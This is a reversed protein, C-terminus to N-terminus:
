TRRTDAQFVKMAGGLTKSAKFEELSEFWWGTLGGEEKEEAETWRNM